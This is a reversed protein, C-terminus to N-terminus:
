LFVELRFPLFVLTCNLACLSEEKGRGDEGSRESDSEESESDRDGDPNNSEEDTSSSVSAQSKIELAEEIFSFLSDVSRDGTYRKMNASSFSPFFFILLLFLLFFLFPFSVSHSSFSLFFYILLLLFSSLGVYCLFLFSPLQKSTEM